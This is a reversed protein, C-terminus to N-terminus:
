TISPGDGGDGLRPPTGPGMCTAMARPHPAARCHAGGIMPAWWAGVVQVSATAARESSSDAPPSRWSRPAGVPGLGRARGRMFAAPQRTRSGSAKPSDSIPATTTALTGQGHPALRRRGDRPQIVVAAM